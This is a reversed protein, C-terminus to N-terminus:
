EEPAKQRMLEPFLGALQKLGTEPVAEEDTPQGCGCPGLNLNHGCRPCLGRCDPGCLMRYPEGLAIEDWLPQTLDVAEEPDIPYLRDEMDKDTNANAMGSSFLWTIALNLEVRTEALCRDCPRIYVGQVCGRFLVDGRIKELWGRLHVERIPPRIVVDPYLESVPIRAAIELGADDISALSYRLNSVARGEDGRIQYTFRVLIRAICDFHRFCM